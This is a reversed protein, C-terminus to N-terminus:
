GFIVWFHGWNRGFLADFGLFSGFIVLTAGPVGQVDIQRIKRSGKKSGNEVLFRFFLLFLTDFFRHYFLIWFPHLFCALIIGFDIGLDFSKLEKRSRRPPQFTSTKYYFDLNQLHPFPHFLSFFSTYIQLRFFRSFFSSFPPSFPHWFPASFPGFVYFPRFFPPAFILSFFLLSFFNTRRRPPDPPYGLQDLVPGVLALCKVSLKQQRVVGLRHRRITTASRGGVGKLAPPQLM